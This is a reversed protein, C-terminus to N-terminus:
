LDFLTPQKPRRKPALKIIGNRVKELLHNASRARSQPIDFISAYGYTSIVLGRIQQETYPHADDDTCCSKINERLENKMTPNLGIPAQDGVTVSLETAGERTLDGHMWKRFVLVMLSFIELAKPHNDRGLFKLVGTENLEAITIAVTRTSGNKGPKIQSEVKLTLDQDTLVGADRLSRLKRMTNESRKEGLRRALDVANIRPEEGPAARITFGDIVRVIRRNDEGM